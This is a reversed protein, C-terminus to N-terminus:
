FWGLGYALAGITGWLMVSLGITLALQNRPKMPMQHPALGMMDASITSWSFEITRKGNELSTVAFQVPSQTIEIRDTPSIGLSALARDHGALMDSETVGFKWDGDDWRFAFDESKRAILYLIKRLAAHGASRPPRVGSLPAAFRVETSGKLGLIDHTIANM